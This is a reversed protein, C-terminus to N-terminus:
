EQGPRVGIARKHLNSCLGKVVGPGVYKSLEAVCRDFDGPTGWGVKAAGEGHSWYDMLRETGVPNGGRVLTRVTQGLQVRALLKAAASAGPMPPAPKAGPKKKAPTGDQGDTGGDPATDATGGDLLHQAAAGVAASHDAVQGALEKVAPHQPQMTTALDHGAAAHQGISTLADRDTDTLDSSDDDGDDDPDAKPKGKPPFPPAALARDLDALARRDQATLIPALEADLARLEATLRQTELRQVTEDVARRILSDVDLRPDRRALRDMTSAGAAILAVPQGGSAVLEARPVPFGPVNVHLAAVLDLRGGITRWDGSLSSARIARVQEATLGPRLAGAVWVGHQDEGAAVDATAQGTDAYHDQVASARMGPSATAHSTGTFLVGTRVDHGEATRTPNLLFYAYGSASRPPTVCQGSIGIHCTGWLALHGFVRGDDTVTLPTPGTLGPDTFWGAPPAVPGGAAVLEGREGACVECPKTRLGPVDQAAAVDLVDEPAQDSSPADGDLEIYCGAFAPFPCLTAMGIEVNTYHTMADTPWGDDDEALVELYEDAAFDISIGRMGKTDVLQAAATGVEGPLFHGRFLMPVHGDADPEGREISEIVGGPVTETTPAGGHSAKTMVMLTLPPERWQTENPDITRKDSTAKGEWVLVGHFGAGQEQQDDAM